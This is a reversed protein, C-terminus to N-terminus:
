RDERETPLLRPTRSQNGKQLPRVSKPSAGNGNTPWIRDIRNSYIGERQIRYEIYLFSIKKEREIVDCKEIVVWYM